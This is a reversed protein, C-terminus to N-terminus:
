LKRLNDVFDRVKGIQSKKVTIEITEYTDLTKLYEKIMEVEKKLDLNYNNFIEELNCYLSDEDDSIEIDLELLQDENYHSIEVDADTESHKGDLECITVSVDDIDEKLKEYSGKTIFINESYESGSYYGTAYAQILVLDVLCRERIKYEYIM